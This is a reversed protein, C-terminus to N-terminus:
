RRAGKRGSGRVCMCVCVCVHLCMCIYIYVCAGMGLLLGMQVFMSLRPCAGAHVFVCFFTFRFLGELHPRMQTRPFSLVWTVAASALEKFRVM